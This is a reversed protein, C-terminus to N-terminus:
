GTAPAKAKRKLIDAARRFADIRQECVHGEVLAHLAGQTNLMGM